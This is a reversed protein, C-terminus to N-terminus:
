KISEKVITGFFENVWKGILYGTEKPMVLSMTISFTIFCIIAWKKIKQIYWKRKAALISKIKANNKANEAALIKQYDLKNETSTQM